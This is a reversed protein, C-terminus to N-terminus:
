DGLFVAYMGGFMSFPFGFDWFRHVFSRTGFEGSAMAFFDILTVLQFILSLLLGSKFGKSFKNSTQKESM